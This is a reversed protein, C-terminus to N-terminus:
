PPQTGARGTDDTRTPAPQTAPASAPQSRRRRKRVPGPVTGGPTPRKRRPPTHAAAEGPDTLPPMGAPVVPPQAARTLVTSTNGANGTAPETTVKELKPTRLWRDPPPGNTAASQPRGAVAPNVPPAYQGPTATGPFTVPTQPVQSSPEIPPGGDLGLRMTVELEALARFKEHLVGFPAIAHGHNVQLETVANLVRQYVDMRDRDVPTAAPPHPVTTTPAGPDPAPAPSPEALLYGQRGRMRESLFRSVVQWYDELRDYVDDSGSISFHTDLSALVFRCIADDVNAKSM